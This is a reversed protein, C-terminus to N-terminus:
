HTFDISNTIDTHEKISTLIKKTDLDWIYIYGDGAAIYKNDNSIAVCCIDTKADNFSKILKINQIDWLKVSTPM